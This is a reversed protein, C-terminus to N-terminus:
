IKENEKIMRLNDSIYGMKEWFKRASNNEILVELEIIKVTKEAFYNVLEALLKNGIKQKKYNDTVFVHSIYGVKKNGLYNPLLRINGAAFGVITEEHTAIVVMNLKGISKKITNIWLFEGNNTLKHNLGITDMYKYMESFLHAVRNYTDKDESSSLSRINIEM